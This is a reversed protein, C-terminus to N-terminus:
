EREDGLVPTALRQEGMLHDHVQDACRCGSGTQQDLASDILADIGLAPTDRIVFECLDVEFWVSKMALPVVGDM